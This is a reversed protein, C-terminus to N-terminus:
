KLCGELLKSLSEDDTGCNDLTVSRILMPDYDFVFCLAALHAHSILYDTLYLEKNNIKSLLPLALETQKTCEKIFQVRFNIEDTLVSNLNYTSSAM